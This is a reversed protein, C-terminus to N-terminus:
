GKGAKRKSAQPQEDLALATEILHKVAGARAPFKNRFRYEDIRELLEHDIVFNLVLKKDRIAEM